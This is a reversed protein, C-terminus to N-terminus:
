RKTSLDDWTGGEGVAAGLPEGVKSMLERIQHVPLYKGLVYNTDLNGKDNPKMRELRHAVIPLM